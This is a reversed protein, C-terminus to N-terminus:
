SFPFHVCKKIDNIAILFLPVSFVEGQPVGNQIEHPSSIKDQIRVMLTRNHLFDQLIKPLSGRLGIDHLKSCIYHRWVRPFAEQLDFFISYLCSNSDTANNIQTQLDALAHSTNRGKRFGYQAPSLHNNSELYWFLRKNLIKQFLKGLVSTLAIPRYSVPLIPDANPKLFPLIIAIKWSPPYINQSFITNFLSLLYTISNHHLNKLMTAHISDLGPSANKLNRELTTTLEDLSIPLNYVLSEENPSDFSLQQTNETQIKHALFSDDYNSNSSVTSYHKALTESILLPDSILLSDSKIQTIRHPSSNGTLRKIDRWM